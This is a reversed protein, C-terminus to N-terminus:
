ALEADITLVKVKNAIRARAEAIILAADSISTGKRHEIITSAMGALQTSKDLMIGVTLALKDPSIKALEDPNEHLQQARAFILDTFEEAALACSKSFEKRKTELTDTHRWSLSRITQRDLGTEKSIGLISNGQALMWLAKAAKRPNWHEIHRKDGITKAREMVEDWWETPAEEALETTISKREAM